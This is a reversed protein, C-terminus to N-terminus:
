APSTDATSLRRRARGRLEGVRWEVLGIASYVYGAVGILNPAMRGVILATVISLIGISAVGVNSYINFRTMAIEIAALGLAEREHLARAHMLALIGFVAVVGAGYIVFLTPVQGVTIVDETIKRGELASFPLSWVFKLPYTYFLVVFLLVGTLTIVYPDDEFDYTRFFKYHRWWVQFIMGFCIAFAPFGRIVAMLEHYTKPVELSVVLLTIAFAFVADSFGEIRSVERRNAM